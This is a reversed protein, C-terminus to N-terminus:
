SRVPLETALFMDVARDILRIWRDGGPDNSAQQSALGTLLATWLDVTEPRDLGAHALLQRLRDLTEDALAYSAASPIFGPVVRQFLLQHRAPDAVSFDVFEAAARRLRERPEDPVEAAEIRALLQEYGHAFMADYIADKGDFYVYLSPARMGVAEAVERLSWGALGRERALQWAAELIEQRTAEHRQARRDPM